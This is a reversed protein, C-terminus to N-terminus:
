VEEIKIQEERADGHDPYYVRIDTKKMLGVIVHALDTQVITDIDMDSAIASHGVHSHYAACITLGALGAEEHCRRREASGICFHNRRKSGNRVRYQQCVVGNREALLGCAEMPAEHQAHEILGALVDSTVQM